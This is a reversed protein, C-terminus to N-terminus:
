GSGSRTATSRARARPRRGGRPGDARAPRGRLPRRLGGGPLEGRPRLEDARAAFRERALEAVRDVATRASPASSRADSREDAPLFLERTFYNSRAAGDTFTTGARRGARRPESLRVARGAALRPRLRRPVGVGRRGRRRRRVGRAPSAGWEPEGTRAPATRRPGHGRRRRGRDRGPHDRDDRVRVRGLHRAAARPRDRTARRAGPRARERARTPGAASVTTGRPPLVRADLLRGAPRRRRLQHLDRRGPDGAQQLRLRRDRRRATSSSGATSRGPTATPSRRRSRRRRPRTGSTAADGGTPAPRVARRRARRADFRLVGGSDGRDTNIWGGVLGRPRAAGAAAAAPPRDDIRLSPRTPSM